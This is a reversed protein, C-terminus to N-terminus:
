EPFKGPIQAGAREVATTLATSPREAFQFRKASWSVRKHAIPGTLEQEPMESGLKKKLFSFFHSIKHCSVSFFLVKMFKPEAILVTPVYESNRPRLNTFDPLASIAIDEVIKLKV